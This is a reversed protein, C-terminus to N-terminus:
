ENIREWIEDVKDQVGDKFQEPTEFKVETAAFVLQELEEKTLM